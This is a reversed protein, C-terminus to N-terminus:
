VCCYVSNQIFVSSTKLLSDLAKLLNHVVSEFVFFATTVYRLLEMFCLGEQSALVEKALGSIGWM